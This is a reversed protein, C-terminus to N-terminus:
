NKKGPTRVVTGEPTTITTVTERQPKGGQEKYFTTTRSRVVEGPRVQTQTRSRAREDDTRATATSRQMANNENLRAKSRTSAEGGEATAEGGGSLTTSQGDPSTTTTGVGYTSATVDRGAVSGQTGGSITQQQQQAKKGKGQALADDPAFALGSLAITSAALAAKAFHRTM